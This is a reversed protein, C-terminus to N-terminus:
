QRRSRGPPARGIFSGAGVPPTGVGAEVCGCAVPVIVQHIQRDHRRHRRHEGLRGAVDGTVTGLVDGDPLRHNINWKPPFFMSLPERTAAFQTKIRSRASALEPVAERCYKDECFLGQFDIAHLPRGYLGNFPLGLRALEDEQHDVM